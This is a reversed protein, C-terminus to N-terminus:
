AYTNIEQNMRDDVDGKELQLQEKQFRLDRLEREYAQLQQRLEENESDLNQRNQRESHLAVQL